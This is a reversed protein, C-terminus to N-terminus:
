ELPLIPFGLIMSRSYATRNNDAQAGANDLVTVNDGGILEEVAITEGVGGFVGDKPGDAKSDVRVAVVDGWDALV